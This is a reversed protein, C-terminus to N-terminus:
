TSRSGSLYYANRGKCRKVLVFCFLIEGASKLLLFLNLRRKTNCSFDETVKGEEQSALNKSDLGWVSRSREYKRQKQIDGNLQEKKM